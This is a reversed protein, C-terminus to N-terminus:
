TRLIRRSRLESHTVGINAVCISAISTARYWSPHINVIISIIKKHWADNLAQSTRLLFFPSMLKRRPSQPSIRSLSSDDNTLNFEFIVDVMNIILHRMWRHAMKYYIKYHTTADRNTDLHDILGNDVGSSKSNGPMAPSVVFSAHRKGICRSFVVTRKWIRSRWIRPRRRCSGLNRDVVRSAAWLISVRRVQVM